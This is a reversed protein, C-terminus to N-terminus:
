EGEDGEYPEIEIEDLGGVSKGTFTTAAGQTEINTDSDDPRKDNLMPRMIRGLLDDKINYKNINTEVSITNKLPKGTQGYIFRYDYGAPLIYDLLDELLILDKLGSPIYIKITYDVDGAETAKNVVKVDYYGSINQSNMLTQVARKIASETGKDKIISSFVSCINRLDQANYQHKTEFGITRTALLVLSDDLNASLPNGTLLDTNMKAYNFVVDLARGLFQFDRSFDYYLEPVLEKTRIM